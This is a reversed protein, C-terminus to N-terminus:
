VGKYASNIIYQSIKKSVAKFHNRINKENTTDKEINKVITENIYDETLCDIYKVLSRHQPMSMSEFSIFFLRRCKIDKQKTHYYDKARINCDLYLWYTKNNCSVITRTKRETTM